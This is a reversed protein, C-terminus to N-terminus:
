ERAFGVFRGVSFDSGLDGGGGAISMYKFGRVYWSRLKTIDSPSDLYVGMNEDYCFREKMKAFAFDVYENLVNKDRALVQWIPNEKAQKKSLLKRLHKELEKRSFKVGDVSNYIDNELVLAGNSIKSKPNIERLHASDLIIKVNGKPHYVIADGTDFYYNIWDPLTEGFTLRAQLINAVSLPIRNEAILKPMQETDRGYFEKYNAIQSNLQISM